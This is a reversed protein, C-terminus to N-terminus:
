VMLRNLWFVIAIIAGVTGMTFLSIRLIAYFIQLISLDHRAGGIGPIWKLLQKWSGQAGAGGSPGQLIRSNETAAVEVSKFEVKNFVSAEIEALRRAAERRNTAGLAVVARSIYQDVTHHSLGTEQAIEKSSRNLAVLRLCTRQMGSLQNIPDDVV